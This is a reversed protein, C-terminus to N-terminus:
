IRRLNTTDHTVHRRGIVMFWSFPSKYQRKNINRIARAARDELSNGGANTVFAPPLESSFLAARVMITRLQAWYENTRPTGKAQPPPPTGM